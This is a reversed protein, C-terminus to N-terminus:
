ASVPKWTISTTSQFGRPTSIGRTSYKAEPKLQFEDSLELFFNVLQNFAPLSGEKEAIDMWIDVFHKYETHVVPQRLNICYDGTGTSGMTDPICNAGM